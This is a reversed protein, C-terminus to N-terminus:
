QESTSAESQRAGARPRAVGPRPRREPQDDLLDHGVPAALDDRDVAVEVRQGELVAAAPPSGEREAGAEQELAARDHEVAGTVRDAGAVGRTRRRPRHGDGAAPGPHGALAPDEDLAPVVGLQDLLDPAVVQPDLADDDLVEAADVVQGAVQAVEAGPGAAADAHEDVM